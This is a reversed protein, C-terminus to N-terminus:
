CTGTVGNQAVGNVLTSGTDSDYDIRVEDQADTDVDITRNGAIEYNFEGGFGNDGAGNVVFSSGPLTLCNTRGADVVVRGEGIEIVWEESAPEAPDPAAPAQAGEAEATEPVIAASTPSSGDRAVSSDSRESGACASMVLAFFVALALWPQAFQRTRQM